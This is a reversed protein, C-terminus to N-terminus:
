LIARLRTRRLAAVLLLTAPVTVLVLVLPALEMGMRRELRSVTQSYLPEQLLYGGLLLPTIKSTWKGPLNPLLAGGAVLTMALGYRMPGTVVAADPSRLLVLLAVAAVSAALLVAWVRRVDPWPRALIRGLGLGLPMSPLGFAWQRFPVDLHDIAPQTLWVTAMGALACALVFPRTPV